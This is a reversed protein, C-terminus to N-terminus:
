PPTLMLVIKLPLAPPPEPLTIFKFGDVLCTVLEPDLPTPADAVAAQHVTRTADFVLDVALPGPDPKGKELENEYCLLLGPEAARIRRTAEQISAPDYTPDDTEVGVEIRARRVTTSVSVTAVVEEGPAFRLAFLAAAICSTVRPGGPEAGLRFLSRVAGDRGILLHFRSTGSRTQAPGAGAEECAQITDRQADVLARVTDKSAASWAQATVAVDLRELASPSPKADPPAGGGAGPPTSPLLGRSPVERGSGPPGGNPPSALTLVSGVPVDPGAAVLTDRQQVASLASPFSRGEAVASLVPALPSRVFSAEQGPLQASVETASIVVLGRPTASADPCRPGALPLAACAPFLAGEPGHPRAVWEVVCRPRRRHRERGTSLEPQQLVRILRDIPAFPLSADVAIRLPEDAKIRRDLELIVRAAGEDSDLETTPGLDRGGFTLRTFGVFLVRDVALNECAAVGSEVEPLTLGAPVQRRWAGEIEASMDMTLARLLAVPVGGVFLVTALSRARRGAGIGIMSPPVVALTALLVPATFFTAALVFGPMEQARMSVIAPWLDAPVIDDILGPAYLGRGLGLLLVALISCAAAVLIDGAVIRRRSPHCRPLAAGGLFVGLVGLASPLALLLMETRTHNGLKGVDLARMLAPAAGLAFLGLFLGVVRRGGARHDRTRTRAVLGFIVSTASLSLAALALGAAAMSDARILAPGRLALAESLTAGSPPAAERLVAAGGLYAAGLVLIPLLLLPWPRARRRMSLMASSGFIVACLGLVAGIALDAPDPALRLSRLLPLLWRNGQSGEIAWLAGFAILLLPATGALDVGVRPHATPRLAAAGAMGAQGKPLSM